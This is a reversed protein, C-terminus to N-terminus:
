RPLPLSQPATSREQYLHERAERLQEPPMKRLADMSHSDAKASSSHRGKRRHKRGSKDPVGDAASALTSGHKVLGEVHARWESTVVSDGRVRLKPKVREFEELWAKNDM